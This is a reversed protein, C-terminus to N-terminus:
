GGRKWCYLTCRRLVALLVVALLLVVVCQWSGLTGACREQVGWLALGEAAELGGLNLVGPLLLVADALYGGWKGWPTVAVACLAAEALLLPICRYVGWLLLMAWLPLNLPADAFLSLSHAPADLAPMGQAYWDSVNEAGFVALGSLLTLGFCVSLTHPLLRTYGLETTRQLCRLKENQLEGFCADTLWILLGLSVLGAAKDAFSDESFLSGYSSPNVLWATYGEQVEAFAAEATSYVASLAEQKLNIASLQYQLQEYEQVSFDEQAALADMSAQATEADEALSAQLAELGDLTEQTVAGGYQSYYEASLRASGALLREELPFLTVLIVALLVLMLWGKKAAFLRYGWLQRWSRKGLFSQWGTSLKELRGELWVLFRGGGQPPHANRWGAALALAACFVAQTVLAFAARNLLLGAFTLNYYNLAYKMWALGAYLNLYKLWGVASQVPITSYALACLGLVGVGVLLAGSERDTLSFLLWFLCTLEFQVLLQVGCALLLFQWTTMPYPFDQFDPVSQILQGPALPGYLCVDALLTGGPVGVAAAASGLFLGVGRWFALAGRGCAAARTLYQLGWRREETAKRALLFAAAVAFLFGYSYDAFATLPASNEVTVAIGDLQEFADLTRQINEKRLDSVSQLVSSGSMQAGAERVSELYAQLTAEGQLDTLLDSLACYRLQVESLTYEGADFAAAVDPWEERLAANEEEYCALLEEDWEADQLDSAYSFLLIMAELEDLEETVDAETLEGAQAEKLLELRLSTRALLDVNSARVALFACFGANCLFLVALTLLLRRDSFLRHFERVM